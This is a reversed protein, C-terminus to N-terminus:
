PHQAQGQHAIPLPALKTIPRTLTTTPTKLTVVRTLGDKATMLTSVRALPWKCPPLREDTILVLSGVQIDNSPHHWKSIAQQRQLYQASWQSWFQQVRQQIFQWRSLRSTALDKLSPEPVSTLASGILFHGPTLASIDDSDDSLPELPRSNLIAEIQALLTTTEEFTLLTEGITRRLHHKLSKVVAEWKGGMHPAAPPNFIWQTRDQALLSSIRRNDQSSETFLTQLSKEAGVFNTGCDSYLSHPIGRRSVFRRYTSIFGDTSYDSVVELHVASTTLCVFVCIWGKHTKAGRGKWTKLTLPGAYDIGTHTFARSPTVRPLPLQGMLQHARIGRQRACVVCRLIHSKVPARGGIIWYSQRIHALTLQTGGHLTRQHSWSIILESLRSHRPLIAPHKGEYNLTSNKLRGGVRAVGQHDIFATLRSFPHSTALRSQSSLMKLEHAFFTSQTVKIWFVKAQELDAVSIHSAQPSDQRNRMRRIFVQCLATIRLLRNLSSYKYILDWDYDVKMNTTFLSVGLRSETTCQEDSCTPQAPWRDKPQALWPPGAWWLTHDELQATTVGRSACDVPNITGPVFKWHAHTTLEQIQSVRNRVYDKWRSSHTKIWTLTVQSDTWLYTEEIDMKLTAHVYKVLKSLLLAATLELRPITLRKLPTVKTRSCILSTKAGKSPTHVVMYVVAAMAFQSADSFGHLEVTSDSSTNFWRPISLRALSTLDKRINLWRSVVQSPLPEDWNIKHLWLEQLLMKARIVIPSVFGLPDFIQAVESLVRRKTLQEQHSISSTSFTFVDEQPLWKLGLIKTACDDLSVPSNISVTLSIANLLEPHNSHWKALPFGGAQCLDELQHAIEILQEGTDGGGFIDDVYRGRTISPVALPFRHGEDEALQMLTRVALFPAAKTGYTVTTLHYSTENHHEDIWLIRQLDWDSHHVKIQRYMKTIDTAFIYRYSRIWLLVDSVNLLLNAGTHMLDNVSLGSSTPSSGNFVVRLKTTTSDPKLVGHHPLYYPPVDSSPQSGVKVMHKLQEYESIFKTYLSQYEKDKNLRRLIRQLCHHATNHSNGLFSTPLKLPIRVIYRGTPDRSHTAKYHDECQQEELTLQDAADTPLEEQVWFRTLLEQLDLDYQNVKIHHATSMQLPSLSVPGLVLWGFISLQAIPM